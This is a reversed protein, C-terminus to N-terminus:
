ARGVDGIEVLQLARLEELHELLDARCREPDVDFEDLLAAHLDRISRPQQVLEWIRASVANLSYYMGDEFNLVVTEGALRASMQRLSARVVTEPGIGSNSQMTVLDEVPM